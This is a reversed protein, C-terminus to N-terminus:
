APSAEPAEEPRPRPGSPRPAGRAPRDAGRPGGRPATEPPTEVVPKPAEESGFVDDGWKKLEDFNLKKGPANIITKIGDRAQEAAKKFSTLYQWKSKVIIEAAGYPLDMVPVLPAKIHKYTAVMPDVLVGKALDRVTNKLSKLSEIPKMGTVNNLVEGVNKRTGQMLSWVKRPFGKLAKWTESAIRGPTKILEFPLLFGKKLIHIPLDVCNMKLNVFPASALTMAPDITAKKAGEAMEAVTGAAMLGANWLPKAIYNYGKKISWMVIATPAYLPFFLIKAPKLIPNAIFKFTDITDGLVSGASGYFKGVSSMIFEPVKNAMRAERGLLSFERPKQWHINSPLFM